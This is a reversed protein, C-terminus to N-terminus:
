VALQSLITPDEIRDDQALLMAKSLILSLTPNGESPLFDLDDEGGKPVICLHRGSEALQSAGSGLHIRYTTRKGDVILWDGAIHCREAFPSRPCCRRWSRRECRRLKAGIAAQSTTRYRGAEPLESVPASAGAGRATIPAAESWSFSGVATPPQAGAQDCYDVEFM